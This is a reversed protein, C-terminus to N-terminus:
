CPVRFTRPYVITRNFDNTDDSSSRFHRLALNVAVKRADENPAALKKSVPKGWADHLPKGHENTIVQFDRRPSKRLPCGPALSLGAPKSLRVRDALFPIKRHPSLAALIAV